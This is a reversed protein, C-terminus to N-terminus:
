TGQFEDTQNNIFKYAWINGVFQAFTPASAGVRTALGVLFMDRWGSQQAGLMRRFGQDADM